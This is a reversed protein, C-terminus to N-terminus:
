KATSRGNMRQIATVRLTERCRSANSSGDVKTVDDQFLDISSHSVLTTVIFIRDDPVTIATEWVHNVTGTASHWPNDGLSVSPGSPLARANGLTYVFLSASALLVALSLITKHM